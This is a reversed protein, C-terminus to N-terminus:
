HCPNYGRPVRDACSSVAGDRRLWQLCRRFASDHGVTTNLTHALEHMLVHRIICEPLLGGADDRVKVFIRQKALTYTCRRSPYVHVDRTRERAEPSLDTRLARYVRQLAVDDRQMEALDEYWSTPAAADAM